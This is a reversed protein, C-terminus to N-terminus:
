TTFHCKAALANNKTKNSEEKKLYLYCTHFIHRGRTYAWWFHNHSQMLGPSINPTERYAKVKSSELIHM